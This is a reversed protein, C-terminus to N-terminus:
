WPVRVKFTDPLARASARALGLADLELHRAVDAVSGSTGLTFGHSVIRSPRSGSTSLIARAVASALVDANGNYAIFLPAGEVVFEAFASTLRKQAVVNVVRAGTGRLDLDRALVILEAVILGSGVLVVRPSSVPEFAVYASMNRLAPPLAAAEASHLRVYVPGKAEFLAWDICDHLEQTDAPELFEMGPMATLAGPQGTSMHTSGNRAECIGADTGIVVLQSGAQAIAHVQDAARLVFGDGIIVLVRARPDTSAIGHASALLHQERIGVDIFRVHPEDLGCSRVLASPIWDATMVYLREGPASRFATVLNRLYAELADDFSRVPDLPTSSLVRAQGETPVGAPRPVTALLSRGIRKLESPPAGRQELDATLRQVADSVVGRPCTSLTHYGSPVDTCGELGYGKVTDAIILTPATSTRPRALVTMIEAVSHGDVIHRVDWGYAAWMAALDCGGDVEATPRCLQKGNRDIICVLSDLGLAAAHRSAEAVNGEQEEGDGLFVWTTAGIARARLAIAAGVGYSLLMGLSGSPTLDVGPLAQMSEHGQLRSGLSRYASLEAADVWGLLEFLSYRLPGLHGRVLVRDRGPHRPDDPDFRMAGGFYLAAMLEASSSSGGLHGSEASLVVELASRRLGIALSEISEVNNM